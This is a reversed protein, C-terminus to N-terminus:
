SFILKLTEKNFGYADLKAVLHKYSIQEFLESLDTLIPGFQEKKDLM